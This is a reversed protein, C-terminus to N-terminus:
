GAEAYEPEDEVDDGLMDRIDRLIEYRELDLLKKRRELDHLKLVNQESKILESLQKSRKALRVAEKEYEIIIDKM